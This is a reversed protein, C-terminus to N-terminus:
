DDWKLTYLNGGGLLKQKEDAIYITGKKSVTLAEKQTLPLGYEKEYTVKRDKVNYRIVRNYTMLYLKDGHFEGGTIADKYWSHKGITISYRYKAKYTGATTPLAYVKCMGDFPETRCKTFIYLSDKYYSICEADYYLKNKAPPFATQEPYNFSIKTVSVSKKTTLGSTPIKYIVLDKRKNLNNGIDALYLNGKGDTTIDEYDVNKAGSLYIKRYLKANTSILYICSTDGSDNHAVLTTDNLFALGSVEQIEKPM